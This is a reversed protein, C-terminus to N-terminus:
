QMNKAISSELVALKTPEKDKWKKYCRASWSGHLLILPKQKVSFKNM